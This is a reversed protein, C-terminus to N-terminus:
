LLDSIIRNWSRHYRPLCIMKNDRRRYGQSQIRQRDISNLWVGKLKKDSSILSARLRYDLFFMLSYRANARKLKSLRRATPIHNPVDNFLRYQRVNLWRINSSTHDYLAIEM